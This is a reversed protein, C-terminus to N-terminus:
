VDDLGEAPVRFLLSAEVIFRARNPGIRSQLGVQSIKRHTQVMDELFQLRVQGLLWSVLRGRERERVAQSLLRGGDLDHVKLGRPAM